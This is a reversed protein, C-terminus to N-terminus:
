LQIDDLSPNYGEESAAVVENIINAKVKVSQLRQVFSSIMTFSKNVLQGFNLDM